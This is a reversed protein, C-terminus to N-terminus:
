RTLGTIRIGSGPIKYRRNIAILVSTMAEVAAANCVAGAYIGRLGIAEVIGIVTDCAGADDGCVLVDCDVDLDLHDLLHASVNQFAAVVRVAEGLLRQLNAVASGGEPLQVRSVKPPVLPVTADILIKGALAPALARVSAIQAAYPVALMVIEASRAAAGNEAGTAMERGIRQNIAAAAAQAKAVDRSGIVVPFGANALRAALGGGESGTGGIVAITTKEGM